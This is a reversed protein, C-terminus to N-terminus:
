EKTASDKTVGDKTNTLKQPKLIRQYLIDKTDSQMRIIM